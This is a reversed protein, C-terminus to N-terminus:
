LNGKSYMLSTTPSRRDRVAGFRGKRGKGRVVQTLLSFPRVSSSTSKSRGEGGIGESVGVWVGRCVLPSTDMSFSM